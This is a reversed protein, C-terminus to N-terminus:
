GPPRGAGLQVAGNTSQLDIRPGTGTGLRALLSGRDRTPSVVPLSDDLMLADNVSTAEITGNVNKPLGLVIDGNVTKVRLDSTLSNVQLVVEGNVIEIDFGGSVAKGEVGGNTSRIVFRGEVNDLTVVGNENRATVISGVPVALRYNVRGRRRRAEQGDAKVTRIIVRDPTAEVTVPQQELLKRAEADTGARIVRRSHVEVSTGAARVIEINSDDTHLEIQGGKALPFTLTSEDEARGRPDVDVFVGGKDGVRVDCAAASFAMM